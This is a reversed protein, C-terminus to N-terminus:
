SRGMLNSDLEPLYRCLGSDNATSATPSLVSSLGPIVHFSPAPRQKRPLLLAAARGGSIAAWTGAQWLPLPGPEPPWGPGGAGAARGTGGPSASREARLANPVRQGTEMSVRERRAGAEWRGM